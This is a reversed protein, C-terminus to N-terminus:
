RKSRSKRRSSSRTPTSPKSGKSKRPRRRTRPSRADSRKRRRAPASPALSHLEQLAASLQELHRSPTASFGALSPLSLRLPAPSQDGTSALHTWPFRGKWIRYVVLALIILGALGLLIEPLWEQLWTWAAALVAMLATTAGAFWGDHKPQQAPPAATAITANKIDAQDAIPGAPLAIPTVEVPASAPLTQGIQAHTAAPAAAHLLDAYFQKGYGAIEAERDHGNIIPRAKWETGAANFYDALKKGTFSGRIMGEFMIKAAISPDLALDPNGVLDVGLLKSMKDYNKLWTLQVLGRGYYVKGGIVVAYKYGKRKVYARAQEDTEKFGERVPLMDHGCEALVTALMYALWRLDTLGRREWEDLIATIGRVADQSLAGPMPGNRIGAFFKARDIAM